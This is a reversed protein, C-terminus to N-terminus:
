RRQELLADDLHPVRRIATAGVPSGVTPIERAFAGLLLSLSAEAEIGALLPDVDRTAEGLPFFRSIRTKPLEDDRGLGALPEIETLVRAFEHRRHLPVQAEVEFPHPDLVEIRGM